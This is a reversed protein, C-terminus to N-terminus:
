GTGTSGDHQARAPEASATRRLADNEAELEDIRDHLPRIMPALEEATYRPEIHQPCNWDYAAVHIRVEREVKARYGPVVLPTERGDPPGRRADSIQAVGFVKLRVQRAYDLFILAVRADHSLNGMTIYQRNGRFDAWAITREDPTRVFGPPGGRFQVYPWGTSSVTAVYFGDLQALFAREVETLPDGPGTVGPRVPAAVDGTRPGESAGPHVRDLRDLAARSGYSTQAALVDATFALSRYGHSM